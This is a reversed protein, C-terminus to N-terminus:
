LILNLNKDRLIKYVFQQTSLETSITLGMENKFLKLIGEVTKTFTNKIGPLSKDTIIKVIPWTLNLLFKPSQDTKKFLNIIFDNFQNPYLLQYNNILSLLSLNNDNLNFSGYVRAYNYSWWPWTENEFFFKLLDNFYYESLNLENEVIEKNTVNSDYESNSSLNNSKVDAKNNLFKISEELVKNLNNNKKAINDLIFISTLAKNQQTFLSDRNILTIFENTEADNENRIKVYYNFISKLHEDSM